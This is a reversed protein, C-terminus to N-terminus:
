RAAEPKPTVHVTFYGTKKRRALDIEFFGQAPPEYGAKIAVAYANYGILSGNVVARAMDTEQHWHGIVDLDAVKAKNWEGIAKNLPITLGGVGGQYRVNDGHHFRVAFGSLDLYTHYGREAIFRMRKKKAWPQQLVDQQMFQGLMWEFNHEAATAVRPKRTNRGHNGYQWVVILEEVDLEECLFRLGATVEARLWFVSEMPAM